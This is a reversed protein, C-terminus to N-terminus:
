KKVTKKTSKKAAKKKLTKKASKNTTKKTSKKATKKATAQYHIVNTDVKGDVIKMMTKCKPYNDCGLFSGYFSKRLVMKGANCYACKMGEEPYSKEEKKKDEESIRTSCDPNICFEQPAKNPRRTYIIPMGCTECKKETPKVQGIRPIAYTTKCDPYNNCAVFKGFKGNRLVLQGAECNPCKGITTAIKIAEHNAESLDEGISKMHLKFKEIIKALVQKSEELVQEGSMHKKRIKEMEEEFQRTLNEDIIDPCYKSLTDITKIGLETAEINNEGIVYGRDFLTEVVQARTSKTGLNLKELQQIISSQTYRKPPKTEKALQNIEKIVIIDGVEVPPLEIEDLKVYPTYFEHWGKYITVTGKTIFEENNVDITITNTERTAADAFVSFFRKVILDYIKFHREDITEPVIGTPYISPHADDTKKGENPVMKTKLIKEALSQYYEQRKLDEAIQRLGLQQPLKQSSTRPYSIYGETYLTQAIELTQKPKIRFCRHAETQLTTLDFPFPPQQNFQKKQADSIKGEKADQVKLMIADAKEKEWFKDEKHNATIEANKIFGHLEIQWFPDPVFARIDKERDVIIKLAPGQVRGSSLVKFGGTARNIADTLARTLSIGYFFDLIHRTEGANAQGWDLTKSKNEYAKILDPKTLTSFKMRNADKKKCIHRVINLGIVEGEIDYDTAITLEDISKSLKKIVNLYKKSFSASKDAEATPVWKVDFVPYHAWPTKETEGITYLHGVACAVIIDRGSHKLVYYPVSNVSQKSPKTDALADAMKKAASPKETIILEPM